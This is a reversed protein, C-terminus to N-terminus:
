HPGAVCFENGEVDQLVTWRVGYEDHDAVVTAGLGVLREVEAERDESTFDPHARNKAVKAEPVKAFMWPQGDREKMGISAFGESAGEDLPRGLAASWFEGLRRADGCDLVVAGMTLAM